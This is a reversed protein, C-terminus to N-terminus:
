PIENSNQIIKKVIIQHEDNSFHLVFNNEANIEQENFECVVSCMSCIGCCLNENLEENDGMNESNWAECDPMNTLEDTLTYFRIKVENLTNFMEIEEGIVLNHQLRYTM